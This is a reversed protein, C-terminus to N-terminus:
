RYYIHYSKSISYTKNIDRIVAMLESQALQWANSSIFVDLATISNDYVGYHGTTEVM